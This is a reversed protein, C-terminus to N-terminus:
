LQKYIVGSRMVMTINDANALISIDALPDGDVLVLDALKGTEVTGIEDLLDLMEANNRTACVIAEMPTFGAKVYQIFERGNTGHKQANFGSDSGFAIKVGREKAMKVGELNSDYFWKARGCYYESLGYDRGMTASADLVCLTPVYWTGRKVMEDIIEETLRAGHEVSDIGARVAALTGQEWMCHAFVKKQRAHTERVIIAIEEDNFEQKLHPDMIGGTAFFKVWEAGRHIQYRVAKLVEVPGDCNNKPNDTRQLFWPYLDNHGGTTSLFMNSSIIRPGHVIGQDIAKKVQMTNDTYDGADRLTTFGANLNKLAYDYSKLVRLGAHDALGLPLGSGPISLDKDGMCLHLHADIFGPLLTKGKADIVTMDAPIPLNVGIEAIRGDRVLVTSNAVPEGGNGDILVAGCIAYNKLM